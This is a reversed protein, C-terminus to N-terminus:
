KVAFKVVQTSNKSHLMYVGASLDSISLSEGNSLRATKVVQGLTNYVNVEETGELGYIRIIGNAPNPMVSLATSEGDESIGDYTGTIQIDDVLWGHACEGKYYFILQITEGKYGSLDVSISKWADEEIEGEAIMNDAKWILAGWGPVYNNTIYLGSGGAEYDDLYWIKSSFSLTINQDVPLSIKPSVLDASQTGYYCEWRHFAAYDDDGSYDLRDWFANYYGNETNYDYTYWDDWKTENNDFSDYFPLGYVTQSPNYKVSIKDILESAYSVSVKEGDLWYAGIANATTYIGHSTAVINGLDARSADYTYIKELTENWSNYKYVGTEVGTTVYSLYINGAEEYIAKCISESDSLTAILTMVSPADSDTNAYLEWLAAKWVGGTLIKGCVYITNNYVALDYAYSYEGSVNDASGIVNGNRWVTAYSYDEGSAGESSASGGCTFVSDSVIDIGMMKCDYGTADNKYFVENNKTIYAYDHGDEDHYSGAAYVNGNNYAIDKLIIGKDPPCDFVVGTGYRKVNTWHNFATGNDNNWHHLYYLEGDEAIIMNEMRYNEGPDATPSKIIWKGNKYITYQLGYTGNYNGCLYIDQAMTGATILLAAVFLLLKKM